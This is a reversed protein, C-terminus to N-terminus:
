RCWSRRCPRWAGRDGAVLGVHLDGLRSIVPVISAPSSAFNEIVTLLSPGPRAFSTLSLSGSGAPRVQVTPPASRPRATVVRDDGVGDLAGEAVEGCALAAGDREGGGRGLGGARGVRVLGRDDPPLKASLSALAVIVQLLGSTFIVFVASRLRRDIGTISAFNEIVTLLSPGPRAFSTLSLSGSGAPRVQVTPPASAALQSSGITASVTLHAKPSRAAALAAGDREGGGRGLGGARGVRVLGRDDPPLKASLSALAVM